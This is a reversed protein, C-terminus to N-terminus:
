AKVKLVMPKAGFIMVNRSDSFVNVAVYCCLASVSLANCKRTM